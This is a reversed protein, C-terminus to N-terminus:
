KKGTSIIYSTYSCLFLVFIGNQAEMDDHTDDQQLTFYLGQQPYLTGPNILDACLGQM